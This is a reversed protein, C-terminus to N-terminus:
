HNGEKKWWRPCLTDLAKEIAETEETSFFSDIAEIIAPYAERLQATYRLNM